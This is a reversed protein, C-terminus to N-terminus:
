TGSCPQAFSDIFEPKLFRAFEAVQTAQQRLTAFPIYRTAQALPPSIRGFTPRNASSIVQERAEDPAVLYFKVDSNPLSTLVDSLRLLGSDVSAADEVEFGAVLRNNQFWLVSIGQLPQSVSEDFVRPLDGRAQGAAGESVGGEAGPAFVDLGMDAGLRVLLARM